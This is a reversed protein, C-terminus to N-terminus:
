DEGLARAVDAPTADADSPDAAADIGTVPREPQQRPGKPRAVPSPDLGLEETVNVPRSPDVEVQHPEVPEVPDVDTPVPPASEHHGAIVSRVTRVTGQALGVATGAVTAPVHVATAALDTVKSLQDKIAM